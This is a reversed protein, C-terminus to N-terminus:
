RMQVDGQAAQQALASLYHGATHGDLGMSEWNPYKPAPSPLGAEIRYPALLRGVDLAALSRGNLAQAHAFPGGDVRVDALPFPSAAINGQGFALAPLSAAAPLLLTSGAAALFRRRDPSAPLAPMLSEPPCRCHPRHDAAAGRPCGPVRAPR